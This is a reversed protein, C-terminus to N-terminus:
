KIYTNQTKNDKRLTTQPQIKSNGNIEIFFPNIIKIIMMMMMMMMMM